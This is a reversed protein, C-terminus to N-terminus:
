RWYDYDRHRRYEYDRGYGYHRRYRGDRDYDRDYYHYRRGYDQGVCAPGICFQAGALVVPKEADNLPQAHAPVTLLCTAGFLVPRIWKM